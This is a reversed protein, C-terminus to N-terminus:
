KIGSNFSISKIRNLVCLKFDLSCMEAYNWKVLWERPFFLFIMQSLSCFLSFGSVVWKLVASLSFWITGHNSVFEFARSDKNQLELRSPRNIIHNKPFDRLRKWSWDVRSAYHTFCCSMVVFPTNGSSNRQTFLYGSCKLINM